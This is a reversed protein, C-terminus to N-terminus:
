MRLTLATSPVASRTILGMVAMGARPIEPVAREASPASTSTSSMAKRIAPSFAAQDHPLSMDVNLVQWPLESMNCMLVLKKARPDGPDAPVLWSNILRALGALFTSIISGTAAPHQWFKGIGPFFM